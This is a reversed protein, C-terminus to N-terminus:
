EESTEKDIRQALLVTEISDLLMDKLVSPRCNEARIKLRM